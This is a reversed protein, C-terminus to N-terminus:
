HHQQALDLQASKLNTYVQPDKVLYSHVGYWVTRVIYTGDPNKWLSRWTRGAVNEFNSEAIFEANIDMELCYM